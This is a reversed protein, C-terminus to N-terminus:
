GIGTPGGPAGAVISQPRARARCSVPQEKRLVRADVPCRDPREDHGSTGTGIIPDLGLHAQSWQQLDCGLVLSDTREASRDAGALPRDIGVGRRRKAGVQQCRQDVVRLSHAAARDQDDGGVVAGGAIEGAVQLGVEGRPLDLEVGGPARGVLRVDLRRGVERPQPDGRQPREGRALRDGDGARDGEGLRDGVAGEPRLTQGEVLALRDVEGVDGDEEGLGAVVPDILDLLAALERDPAADEVDVRRGLLAGDPDLEEAVLDLREAPERDEGLAREAVGDPDLELGRRLEGGLVPLRRLLHEPAIRSGEVQDGLGGQHRDGGALLDGAGEAVVPLVHGRRHVGIVGAAEVDVRGLRERGTRPQRQTGGVGPLLV